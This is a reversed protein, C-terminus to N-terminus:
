YVFLVLALHLYRTERRVQAHAHKTKAIFLLRKPIGNLKLSTPHQVKGERAVEVVLSLM